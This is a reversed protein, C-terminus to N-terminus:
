YCILNKEEQTIKFRPDPKFAAIKAKENRPGPEPLSNYINVRDWNQFAERDSVGCFQKLVMQSITNSAHVGYFCHLYIPGMAGNAKIIHYIKEILDIVKPDGDRAHKAQGIHTYLLENGDCRVTTNIPTYVSFVQSFGHQCLLTRYSSSLAQRKVNTGGFYYVGKLVAKPRTEGSNMRSMSIDTANIPHNYLAQYYAVQEQLSDFGWLIIPCLIVYIFSVLKLM